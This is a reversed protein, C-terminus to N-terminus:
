KGNRFVNGVSESKKELARLRIEHDNYQEKPVLQNQMNRVDGRLEQLQTSLQNLQNVLVAKSSNDNFFYTAAFVISGTILAIMITQIHREMAGNSGQPTRTSRSITKRATM